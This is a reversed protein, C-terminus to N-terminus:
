TYHITKFLSLGFAGSLFSNCLEHLLVTFPSYLVPKLCVLIYSRCHFSFNLLSDLIIRSRGSKIGLYMTSNCLDEGVKIPLNSGCVRGCVFLMEWEKEEELCFIIEWRKKKFKSQTEKSLVFLYLSRHHM